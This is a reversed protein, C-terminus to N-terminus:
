DAPRSPAHPAAHGAGRSLRRRLLWVAAVAVLAGAALLAVLPALRRQLFEAGALVTGVAFPVEVLFLSAAYKAAPYRALGLLYTPVESPLALRFLLIVGFPTDDAILHEYPALTELRVLHRLVPRGLWRAAAYATLGGVIWGAALLVSTTWTGWAAVGAPVLAVSSFFALVASAAALAAFVFPGLVPHDALMGGAVAAARSLADHLAVSGMLLAVVLATVLAAVVRPGAGHHPLPSAGPDARPPSPPSTM